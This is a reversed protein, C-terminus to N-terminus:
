NFSHLKCIHHPNDKIVNEYNNDKHENKLQISVKLHRLSGIKFRHDM